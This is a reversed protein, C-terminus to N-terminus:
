HKWHIDLTSKTQSERSGVSVTDSVGGLRCVCLSTFHARPDRPGATLIWSSARVTVVSVSVEPDPKVQWHTPLLGLTKLVKVKGVLSGASAGPGELTRCGAAEHGPGALCFGFADACSLALCGVM